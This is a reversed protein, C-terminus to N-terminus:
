AVERVLEAERRDAAERGADDSAGSFEDVLTSLAVVEAFSLITTFANANPM